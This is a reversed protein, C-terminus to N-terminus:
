RLLRRLILAAVLGAAAVIVFLGPATSWGFAQAWAGLAVPGILQGINSAQVILGLTVSLLPASPTLRPSAAFISAPILGTLALSASALAVVTSAPLAEAFIGFSAVGMFAFAVAVIIWLPIGLRLAVGAALNGLANAAVTAASMLGAQAVGLGLRDVLLLPMLGTLAFYQSTYLAFTLAGAASGPSRVVRTMDSWLSSRGGIRPAGVPPVTISVVAAYLLAVGATILWLSQWGFAALYPGAVMMIASGAPLYCSWLALVLDYDRPAALARLLMPAAMVIGLFGCGEIVRAAFLTLGSGALAGLVGGGGIMLLGFVMTNRSGLRAVVAGAPLAVFAALTAYASVILAALVVSLGLDQRVLLIGVATRGLQFAGVIGAGILVIISRWASVPPQEPM